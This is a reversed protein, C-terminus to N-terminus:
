VAHIGDEARLENIIDTSTEEEVVEHEEEGFTVEAKEDTIILEIMTAATDKLEGMKREIQRLYGTFRSFLVKQEELDQKSIAGKWGEPLEPIESEEEIAYEEHPPPNDDGPHCGLAQSLYYFGKGCTCLYIPKGFFSFTGPRAWHNGVPCFYRRYLDTGSNLDKARILAEGPTDTRQLREVKLFYESKLDLETRYEDKQGAHFKKCKGCYVLSWPPHFTAM